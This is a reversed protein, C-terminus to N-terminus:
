VFLFDVLEGMLIQIKRSGVIIIRGDPQVLVKRVAVRSTQDIAIGNTGFTRDYDWPAALVLPAFAASLLLMLKTVTFNFLTKQM